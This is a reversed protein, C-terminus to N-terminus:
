WRNPAGFLWTSWLAREQESAIDEQGHLLSDLVRVERGAERLEQVILAGIYGSGGTVLTTNAVQHDERYNRARLGSHALIRKEDVDIASDRLPARAM